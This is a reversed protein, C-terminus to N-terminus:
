PNTQVQVNISKIGLDFSVLDPNITYLILWASLALLLGIVARQIRNVADTHLKESGGGILEVGGVVIMLVALIVAVTVMFPFLWNLYDSLSVDTKKNFGPLSELLNYTNASSASSAVIPAIILCILIIVIYKKM